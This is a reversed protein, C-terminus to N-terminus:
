YWSLSKYNLIYLTTLYECPYVELEALTTQDIGVYKYYAIGFTSTNNPNLWTETSGVISSIHDINSMYAMIETM